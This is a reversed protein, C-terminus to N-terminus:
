RNHDRTQGQSYGGTDRCVPRIPLSATTCPDRLSQSQRRRCASWSSTRVQKMDSATAKEADVSSKESMARVRCEKTSPRSRSVKRSQLSTAQLLPQALRVHLSSHCRSYAVPCRPLHQSLTCLMISPSKQKRDLLYELRSLVRHPNVSPLPQAAGGPFFISHVTCGVQRQSCLPLLAYCCHERYCLICATGAMCSCCLEFGHQM